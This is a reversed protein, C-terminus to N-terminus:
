GGRGPLYIIVFVVTWIIDVLGWYLATAQVAPTETFWGPDRAGAVALRALLCIGVVLHVAHIATLCWYFSFFLEAGEAHLKFDPGPWLHEHFDERYEFGKLVLFAVGLLAGIWLMARAFRGLGPWRAARPVLAVVASSILLIATNAGGFWLSTEAGAEWFAQPYISRYITYGAFLGSFFLLESALFAWMGLEVAQRQRAIDEWPERLAAKEAPTIRAATM